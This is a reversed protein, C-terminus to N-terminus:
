ANETDKQKGTEAETQSYFYCIYEHRQNFPCDADKDALECLGCDNEIQVDNLYIAKAHPKLSSM